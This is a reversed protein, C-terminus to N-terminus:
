TGSFVFTVSKKCARVGRLVGLASSASSLHGGGRDRDLAKTNFMAFAKGHGDHRESVTASSTIAEDAKDELTM